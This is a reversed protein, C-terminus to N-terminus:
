DKMQTDIGHEGEGLGNTLENKVRYTRREMAPDTVDSMCVRIELNAPDRMHSLRQSSGHSTDIWRNNELVQNFM